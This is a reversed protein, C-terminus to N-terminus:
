ASAARLRLGSSCRVCPFGQWTCRSARASVNTMVASGKASFMDVVRKEIAMPTLGVAGLIGYVLPGEPSDKIEDMRRKLERLRERPSRIDVPLALFVLGFRNGLTRPIPKDLPRLNFPVIAHVEAIPGDHELMYRRLAGSVAALLVDNVTAKQAHAIAKIQDLPIPRSWAVHRMGSLEGRVASDADNPGFLLKALTQADDGLAGATRRPHM